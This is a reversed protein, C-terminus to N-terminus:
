PFKPFVRKYLNLCITDNQRLQSDFVCKMFGHTGIPELIEGTHGLKTVLQLPKFWEIDERNYFMGRAVVSRRHIKYPLATLVVKKCLLRETDACEFSGTCLLTDCNMDKDRLWMMVPVSSDCVPGYVSACCAGSGTVRPLFRLFKQKKSVILGNPTVESFAPRADYRRFGADITVLDRSKVTEYEGDPSNVAYPIVTSASVASHNV